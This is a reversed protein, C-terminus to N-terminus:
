SSQFYIGVSPLLSVADEPTMKLVEVLMLAMSEMRLARQSLNQSAPSMEHSAALYWSPSGQSLHIGSEIIAQEQLYYKEMSANARRGLDQLM